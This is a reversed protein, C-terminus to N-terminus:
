IPYNKMGAPPGAKRSQDEMGRHRKAVSKTRDGTGGAANPAARRDILMV